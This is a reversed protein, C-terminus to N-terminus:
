HESISNKSQHLVSHQFTLMKQMHDFYIPENMEYRKEIHSHQLTKKSNMTLIVVKIGLYPVAFIGLITISPQFCCKLPLTNGTLIKPTNGMKGMETINKIKETEKKTRKLVMCCFSSGIFVQNEEKEAEEQWSIQRGMCSLKDFKACLDRGIGSKRQQKQISIM